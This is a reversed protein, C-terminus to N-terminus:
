MIVGRCPISRYRWQLLAVLVDDDDDGDVVVVFSSSFYEVKEERNVKPM